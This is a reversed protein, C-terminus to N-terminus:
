GRRMTAPDATRNAARWKARDLAVIPQLRLAKADANQIGDYDAEPGLIRRRFVLLVCCIKSLEIGVHAELRLATM